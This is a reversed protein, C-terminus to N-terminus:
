LGARTAKLNIEIIGGPPVITNSIDFSQLRPFDQPYGEMRFPFGSGYIGVDTGDTGANHGPPTAPLQFNNEYHLLTQLRLFIKNKNEKFLDIELIILCIYNM